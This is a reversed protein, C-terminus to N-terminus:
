ASTRNKNSRIILGTLGLFIFASLASAFFRWDYSGWFTLAKLLAFVFFALNLTLATAATKTRKKQKPLIRSPQYRASSTLWFLNSSCGPNLGSAVPHGTTDIGSVQKNM